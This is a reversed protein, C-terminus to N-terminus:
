DHEDSDTFTTYMQRQQWASLQNAYHDTYKSKADNPLDAYHDASKISGYDGTIQGLIAARLDKVDSVHQTDLQIRRSRKKASVIYYYSSPEATIAHLIAFLELCVIVFRLIWIAIEVGKNEPQSIFRELARYQSIPSHAEVDRIKKTDSSLLSDVEAMDHIAQTSDITYRSKALEVQKAREAYVGARGAKGSAGKGAAELALQDVMQQLQAYSMDLKQQIQDKKAKAETRIVSEKQMTETKIYGEITDHFVAIELFVLSILSLVVASIIRFFSKKIKKGVGRTVALTELLPKDVAFVIILGWVLGVIAGYYWQSLVGVMFSIGLFGFIFPLILMYGTNRFKKEESLVETPDDIARIVKPDAGGLSVFFNSFKRRLREWRVQKKARDLEDQLYIQEKEKEVQEATLIVLNREM